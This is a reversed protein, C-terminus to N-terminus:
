KCFRGPRMMHGAGCAYRTLEPHLPNTTPPQVVVVVVVVAVAVVVVGGGWWGTVGPTLGNLTHRLGCSAGLDNECILTDSENQSM